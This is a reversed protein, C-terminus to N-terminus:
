IEVDSITFRYKGTPSIPIEGCAEVEVTVMEGLRARIKNVLGNIYESPVKGVQEYRVVVHDLAKQHVQFRRIGSSGYFLHTFFEGHIIEGKHTRILDTSRGLLGKLVPSPRGCPCLEKDIEGMDENCYRIFPMAYNSLDTVVIYGIEGEPLPKGKEDTIEIFRWASILHLRKEKPCEAALNNVERSGYFNYVPSNFTEEILQRQRPWLMEAASRIAKFRLNEIGNAKACKALAELASSYGTLCPPRWRQLMRCFNLLSEDNMRFANISRSRFRWQYLREKFSLEHFERDAGWVSAIPDYPRIGWWDKVYTDLATAVTQYKQDQYFKLPTGTSGGTANEYMLSRILNDSTLQNLYERVIDKTLIPIRKLDAPLNASKPDFSVKDFAKKYYSVHNKAYNLLQRLRQDRLKKWEDPSLKNEEKLEHLRQHLGPFECARSLHWHLNYILSLMEVM